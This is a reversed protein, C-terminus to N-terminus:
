SYFQWLCFTIPESLHNRLESLMQKQARKPNTSRILAICVWVTFPLFIDVYLWLIVVDFGIKRARRM